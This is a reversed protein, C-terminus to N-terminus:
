GQGELIWRGSGRDSKHYATGRLHLAQRGTRPDRPRQRLSARRGPAPFRHARQLKGPLLGRSPGGSRRGLPDRRHGDEGPFHFPRGLDHRPDDHLDHRRPRFPRGPPGPLRWDIPNRGAFQRCPPHSRRPHHAPINRDIRWGHSFRFILFGNFRVPTIQRPVSLPTNDGGCAERAM